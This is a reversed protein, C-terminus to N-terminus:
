DRATRRNRKVAYMAVDAAAVADAVSAGVDTIVTMGVSTRVAVTVDGPLVVPESTLRRVRACMEEADDSSRLHAVCIFEDGGLRAVTDEDRLTDRLRTSLVILVLDGAEHGYADNIGKFDDVDLYFVAVVGDTRDRHRLVKDIDGDLLARNRLGTLPDHLALRSLEAHRRRHESLDELVTVGGVPRGDADRLLTVTVRVWVLHGDRHRLRKEVAPGRTGGSSLLAATAAEDLHLDDPHTLSQYFTGTLQEAPYGLLDGLAQNVRLCQGDLSAVALAVPATDFALETLADTPLGPDAPQPFPTCTPM